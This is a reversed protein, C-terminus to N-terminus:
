SLSTASFRLSRQISPLAVNVVTIDLIVMMQCAVIVALTLAPYAARLADRRSAAGPRAPEADAHVLTRESM